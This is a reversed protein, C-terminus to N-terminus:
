SPATAGTQLSAAAALAAFQAAAPRGEHGEAGRRPRTKRMPMRASGGRPAPAADVATGGCLSRPWRPVGRPAPAVINHLVKGPRSGRAPGHAAKASQRAAAHAARGDRPSQAPVGHRHSAPTLCRKAAPTAREAPRRVALPQGTPDVARAGRARAPLARGEAGQGVGPASAAAVGRGAAPEGPPAVPHPPLPRQGGRADRLAEVHRTRLPYAVSGRGGMRMGETPGPAGQFSNAM